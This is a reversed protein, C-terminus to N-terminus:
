KTLDFNRGREPALRLRAADWFIGNILEALEDPPRKSFIEAMAGAIAVTLVSGVGPIEGRPPDIGIINEHNIWGEHPELDEAQWDYGETAGPGYQRILADLKRKARDNPRLTAIKLLM